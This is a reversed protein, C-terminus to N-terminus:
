ERLLDRSIVMKQAESTGEYLETVRADRFYREVPYEKIYGYGGHIQVAENAVFNAMQTSFLKAMSSERHCPKGEDKLQAARYGMLRAADIKMAMEALKFQIAQFNAIPQDFQKRDKSYKLAENFAAQAIGIAQFCVGIRGSNLITVAYKFGEKEKGVLNEKPVKVDDFHVERTDSCKIGCKKEPAGLTMGESGGDVVFCTIGKRGEDPHTKAFVIFVKAWQANTVYSKTGNIVYHDGKDEATVIMSAIDTGANPETLCYAGIKEGGAMDPLYKKKLEDSGHLKLMECALSNHVSLMIGFGAAAGCIEELVGMFATASMDLGGYEEPVTFGFYGLEACERILDDPTTGEEDMEMARPAIRKEALDRAMQKLELDEETLHFDM